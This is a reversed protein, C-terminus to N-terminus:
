QFRINRATFADAAFRRMRQTLDSLHDKQPNIAWVIDSMTDVLERSAGAIKTLPETVPSDKYDPQRRIVESLISIKTLSSGIDDHLDAAIRRRVRELEALREERSKRLAEEAKHLEMLRAARYRDFVVLASLVLIAIPTLFWWRRWIPPLIRFTVSAPKQ